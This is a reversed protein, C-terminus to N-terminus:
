PQKRKGAAATDITPVSGAPIRRYLNTAYPCIEKTALFVLCARVVCSWGLREPYYTLAYESAPFLALV